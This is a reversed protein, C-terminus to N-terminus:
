DVAAEPLSNSDGFPSQSCFNWNLSFRHSGSPDQIRGTGLPESNVIDEINDGSPVVGGNFDGLRIMETPHNINKGRYKPSQLRRYIDDFGPSASMIFKADTLGEKSCGLGEATLELQDGKAKVGRSNKFIITWELFQFGSFSCEASRPFDPGLDHCVSGVREGYNVFSILIGLVQPYKPNSALPGNEDVNIKINFVQFASGSASVGTPASPDSELHVDNGKFGKGDLVTIDISDATTMPILFSTALITSHILM